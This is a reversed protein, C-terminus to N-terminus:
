CARVHGAEKNRGRSKPKRKMEILAKGGHVYTFTGCTHRSGHPDSVADHSRSSSNSITTLWRTPTTFWVWTSQFLLPPKYCSSLWGKLETCLIKIHTRSVEDLDGHMNLWCKRLQALKGVRKWNGTLVPFM